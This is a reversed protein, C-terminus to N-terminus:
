TMSQICRQWHYRQRSNLVPLFVQQGKHQLNEEPASYMKTVIAETTLLYIKLKDHATKLKQANSDELFGNFQRHAIPAQQCWRIQLYMHWSM